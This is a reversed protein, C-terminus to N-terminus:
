GGLAKLGNIFHSKIEEPTRTEPKYDLIERWSKPFESGGAAASVSNTLSRLMESMFFNFAEHKDIANLCEVVHEILYHKGLVEM